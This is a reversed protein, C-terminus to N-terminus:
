LPVSKNLPIHTFQEKGSAFDGVTQGSGLLMYKYTTLGELGMPGRAHLKGTAVGLEAGFGYRFGDAFRTSCNWYVGASDVQHLFFAATKENATIIADTHRSSHINIFDVAEQASDVIKISLIYDLYETDWDAETACQCAIISRTRECGRLEVHAAAMAEAFRPLFLPAIDKHVLLNETANCVSVYQTKADTVVKLAMDPDADKDVYSNCLGEAHGLVPISSREMINKVFANSGRPIILDVYENLTLLQGVDERTEMLGLWGEPMNDTARSLAEYLARNTNLAESGGKLLAANGSKLCLSAIQVLADPRSEFIIGVVGIPCSVRYLELGPAMETSLMTRGLPDPLKQLSELGALVEALKAEGFTLRKQIPTPLNKANELDKRNATFISEKSENLAKAMAALAANRMENSTAQLALSAERAKRALTIVDSM